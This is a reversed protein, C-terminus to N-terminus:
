ELGLRTCWYQLDVNLVEIAIGASKRTSTQDWSMGHYHQLIMSCPPIACSSCFSGTACDDMYWRRGGLRTADVASKDSLSMLSFGTTLSSSVFSVSTKSSTTTSAKLTRFYLFCWSYFLIFSSKSLPSSLGAATYQNDM